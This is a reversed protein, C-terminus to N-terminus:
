VPEVESLAAELKEQLHMLVSKRERLRRKFDWNDTGAIEMRLDSLCCQLVDLMVQQEEVNLCITKM